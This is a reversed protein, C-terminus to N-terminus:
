PELQCDPVTQTSELGYWLALTSFDSLDVIGDGDLDSCLFEAQDCYMAPGTLGYCTAFTAADYLDVPGGSGNVDGCLCPPITSRAALIDTDFGISGGLTDDSYWVAVWRGAGDTTIVPEYDWGSDSDANCNLPEPYTWSAGHDTSRAMLIDEDTGMTGGLDDSSRWVAVWHGAGDTTVEPYWDFGSDTAANSNLPQPYTWTAGHDTSRAM